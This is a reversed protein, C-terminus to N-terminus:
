SDEHLQRLANEGEAIAETLWAVAQAAVRIRAQLEAVKAANAGVVGGGLITIWAPDVGAVGGVGVGAGVLASAAAAEPLADLASGASAMAMMVDFSALATADFTAFGAVGASGGPVNRVKRAKLEHVKQTSTM